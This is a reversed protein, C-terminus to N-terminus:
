ATYTLAQIELAMPVQIGAVGPHHTGHKVLRVPLIQTPNPYLPNSIEVVTAYGLAVELYRRISRKPVGESRTANPRTAGWGRGEFTGGL